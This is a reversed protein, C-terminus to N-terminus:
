HKLRTNKLKELCTQQAPGKTDYCADQTQDRGAPRRRDGNRDVVVGQHCCGQLPLHAGGDVDAPDGGQQEQQSPGEDADDAALLPRWRPLVEVHGVAADGREAAGGGARRGQPSVAHPRVAGPHTARRLGLRSGVAGQIFSWVQVADVTLRLPCFWAAVPRLIIFRCFWQILM